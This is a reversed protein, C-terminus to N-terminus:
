QQLYCLGMTRNRAQLATAENFLDNQKKVCAESTLGCDEQIITEDMEPCLMRSHQSKGHYM